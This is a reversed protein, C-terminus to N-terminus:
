DTRSTFDRDGVGIHELARELLRLEGGVDGRDPGALRGVDVLVGREEEIAAEDGLAHCEQEGLHGLSQGALAAFWDDLDLGGEATALRVRQKRDQM